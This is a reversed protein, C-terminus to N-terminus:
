ARLKQFLCPLLVYLKHLWLLCAVMAGYSCNVSLSVSTILLQLFLAVLWHPLVLYCCVCLVLHIATSWISFWYCQSDVATWFPKRGTSKYSIAVFNCVFLVFAIIQLPVFASFVAAAIPFHVGAPIFGFLFFFLFSLFLWFVVCFLILQM